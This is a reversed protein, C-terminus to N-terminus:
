NRSGLLPETSSSTGTSCAARQEAAATAVDHPVRAQRSSPLHVRCSGLCLVSCALVAMLVVAYYVFKQHTEFKSSPLAKTLAFQAAWSMVFVACFSAGTPPPLPTPPTHNILILMTYSYSYPTHYPTHHVLKLMTHSYSYPTHTHTHHTLILITHPTHHVLIIYSTHHMTTNYPPAHPQIIYPPAHHQISLCKV